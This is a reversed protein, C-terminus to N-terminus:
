ELAWDRMNKARKIIVYLIGVVLLVFVGVVIAVNIDGSKIYEFVFVLLFLAIPSFIYLGFWGIVSIYHYIGTLDYEELDALEEYESMEYYDDVEAKAHRSPLKTLYAFGVVLLLYVVMGVYSDMVLMVFALLFTVVALLICLMSWAIGGGGIRAKIQQQKLRQASLKDHLRQKYDANKKNFRNHGLNHQRKEDASKDTNNDNKFKINLPKKTKEKKDDEIIEIDRIVRKNLFFFVLSPIGFLVLSTIFEYIKKQRDHQFKALQENFEYIKKGDVEMDYLLGDAYLVTATQDKYAYAKECKDYNDDSCHLKVDGIVFYHHTRSYKGGGIRVYEYEAPVTAIVSSLQSKDTIFDDQFLIGSNIVFGYALAFIPTTFIFQNNRIPPNRYHYVSSLILVVMIIIIFIQWFGLLLYGCILLLSWVVANLWFFMIPTISDVIDLLEQKLSIIKQMPSDWFNAGNYGM